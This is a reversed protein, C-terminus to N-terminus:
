YRTRYISKNFVKTLDFTGCIVYDVSGDRFKQVNDDLHEDFTFCEYVYTHLNVFNNIQSYVVTGDENTGGFVINSVEDISDEYGSTSKLTINLNANMLVTKM